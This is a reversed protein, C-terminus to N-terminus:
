IRIVGGLYLGAATVVLAVIVLALILSLRSGHFGSSTRRITSTDVSAQDNHTPAADDLRRAGTPDPRTQGPELARAKGSPRDREAAGGRAPDGKARM